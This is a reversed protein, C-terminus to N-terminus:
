IQGSDEAAQRLRASIEEFTTFGAEEGVDCIAEFATWWRDTPRNCEGYLHMEDLFSEFKKTTGFLFKMWKQSPVVGAEVALTISDLVEHFTDIDNANRKVKTLPTFTQTSADFIHPFKEVPRSKFKYPKFTSTM